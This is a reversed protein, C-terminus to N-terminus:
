TRVFGVDVRALAQHHLSFSPGLILASTRGRIHLILLLMNCILVNLYCVFIYLTIGMIGLHFLIEVVIITCACKYLFDRDSMNCNVNIVAFFIAVRPSHLDLYM